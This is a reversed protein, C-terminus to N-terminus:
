SMKKLATLPLFVVSDLRFSLPILMYQARLKRGFMRSSGKSENLEHSLVIGEMKSVSALSAGCCLEGRGGCYCFVQAPDGLFFLM